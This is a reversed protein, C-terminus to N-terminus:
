PEDYGRLYFWTNDYDSKRGGGQNLVWDVEWDYKLYRKIQDETPKKLFAAELYEGDQDYANIERTLIWM